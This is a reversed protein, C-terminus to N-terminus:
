HGTPTDTCVNTRKRSMFSKATRYHEKAILYCVSENYCTCHKRYRPSVSMLASHFLGTNDQKIMMRNWHYGARFMHWYYALTAKM